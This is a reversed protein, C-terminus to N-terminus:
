NSQRPIIARISRFGAHSYLIMAGASKMQELLRDTVNATIDVAVNNNDDLDVGTYLFPVGPAASEGRMMRVTYLLNSDLKRQALTRSDKDQELALIQQAALASM